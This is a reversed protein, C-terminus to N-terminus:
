SSQSLKAVLKSITTGILESRFRGNILFVTESIFQIEYGESRIVYKYPTNSYDNTYINYDFKLESMPISCVAVEEGDELLYIVGDGVSDVFTYVENDIYADKITPYYQFSKYVVAGTDDYTKYVTSGNADSYAKIERTTGDNLRFVVEFSCTESLPETVFAETYVTVWFYADFIREIELANTTSTKHVIHENESILHNNREVEVVDELALTWMWEEYDYLRMTVYAATMNRMDYSCTDCLLNLDIDEHPIAVRQLDNCSCEDVLMHGRNGCARWYIKCTDGEKRYGCADCLHDKDSDYHPSIVLTGFECCDCLPQPFHGTKGDDGLSPVYKVQCELSVLYGCVDCTKNYDENIHPEYESASECGCTYVERHGTEKIDLKTKHVHEINYECTDCIDNKDEDTHPEEAIDFDCRNWTCKPVRWHVNEDYQWEGMIHEHKLMDCSSLLALCTIICILYAFLKKM